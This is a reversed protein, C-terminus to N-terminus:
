SAGRIASHGVLLDGHLLQRLKEVAVRDKDRNGRAVFLELLVDLHRTLVSRDATDACTRQLNEILMREAEDHRGQALVARALEVPIYPSGATVAVPTRRLSEEAERLRGLGILSCGRMLVADGDEQVAGIQEAIDLARPWDHSRLAKWGLDRVVSNRLSALVTRRKRLTPDDDPGEAVADRRLRDIEALLAELNQKNCALMAVKACRVFFRRAPPIRAVAAEMLTEREEATFDYRVARGLMAEPIAEKLLFVASSDVRPIVLEFCPHLFEMVVHIHPLMAHHYDQHVVISVGPILSPFMHELVRAWLQQSKAIDVLLLEIPGASWHADLFDGAHVELLDRVPETQRDFWERTSDGIALARGLRTKMFEVTGSEHVRFSDFCHVKKSCAPANRNALLGAAFLSASKGLFSGADVVTGRGSFYTRALEFLLKSEGNGLMGQLQLAPQAARPAARDWPRSRALAQLRTRNASTWPLRWMM